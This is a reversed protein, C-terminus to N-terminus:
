VPFSNGPFVKMDPWVEYRTFKWVNNAIESHPFKEKELTEMQAHLIKLRQQINRELASGTQGSTVLQDTFRTEAARYALQANPVWVGTYVDEILKKLAPLDYRRSGSKNWRGKKVAEEACLTFAAVLGGGYKYRESNHDVVNNQRPEVDFNGGDEWDDPAMVGMGFLIELAIRAEPSKFFERLNKGSLLLNSPSVHTFPNKYSGGTRQFAAPGSGVTPASGINPHGDLIGIFGIVEGVAFNRLHSSASAMQAPDNLRCLNNRLKQSLAQESRTPFSRSM